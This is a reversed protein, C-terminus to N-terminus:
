TVAFSCHAKIEEGFDVWSLGNRLRSSGSNHADVSHSVPEFCFFESDESPSYLLYFELLRSADIQLAINNEPWFIRAQGTWGAFVNNIWGKPLPSPQRFDWNSNDGLPCFNSPLHDTTELYVGTAPANLVTGATRPLWPHLGLGYPLAFPAKNVISLIIELSRGTVLYRVAGAYRYPGPGDSELTLNVSDPATASVVWESQFGNGHIPYPEGPLNPELAHFVGDVHFGGGSIRNSWPVLLNCALAFPDNSGERPWPRFVAHGGFDFRALGGGLAPVITASVDGKRIVITKAIM